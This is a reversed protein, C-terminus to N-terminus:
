EMLGPNERFQQWLRNFRAEYIMKYANMKDPFYHTVKEELKRQAIEVDVQAADEFLILRCIAAADKQIEQAKKREEESEFFRVFDDATEIMSIDLKFGCQCALPATGEFQAVDYKKGCQPCHIPM